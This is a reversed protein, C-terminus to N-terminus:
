SVLDYVRVREVGLEDRHIGLVSRGTADMPAFGDPLEVEAVIRGDAEILTWRGGAMAGSRLHTADTAPEYHKLWIREDRDVMSTAIM